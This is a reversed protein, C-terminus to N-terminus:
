VGEYPAVFRYMASQFEKFVLSAVSKSVNKETLLFIFYVTKKPYLFAVCFIEAVNNMRCCKETGNKAVNEAVHKPLMKPLMKHLMQVFNKRCRREAVFTLLVMKRM